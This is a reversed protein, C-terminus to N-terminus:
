ERFGVTNSLLRSFKEFSFNELHKVFGGYMMTMALFGTLDRKTFSPNVNIKASRAFEKLEQMSYHQDLFAVLKSFNGPSYKWVSFNNIAWFLFDDPMLEFGVRENPRSQKMSKHVLRSFKEPSPDTSHDAYSRYMMTMVIFSVLERKNLSPDFPIKVRTAFEKVAQKSSYKNDIFTVLKEFNEPSFKWVSFHDLAWFFFDDSMLKLSM